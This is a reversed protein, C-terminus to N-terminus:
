VVLGQALLMNVGLAHLRASDRFRRSEVHVGGREANREGFWLERARPLCPVTLKVRKVGGVCRGPPRGCDSRDEPPWERGRGSSRGGGICSDGITRGGEVEFEM